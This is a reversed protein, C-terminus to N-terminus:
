VSENIENLLHDGLIPRPAKPGLEELFRSANTRVRPGKSSVVAKMQLAQGRTLSTCSSLLLYQKTRTMAVYLLRRQEELHRIQENTDKSEFQQPLVGNICGAVVVFRESLGKSKHLSMVRVETAEEPIEPQSIISKMEDYLENIDSVETITQATLERLGVTADEVPGLWQFIFDAIAASRLTVLEKIIQKYQEVIPGMHPLSIIGRALQDLAELLTINQTQCYERLIKISRARWDLAEYGLAARWAVKDEPHALLNLIALREQARPSDLVGEHFFSRVPVGLEMLYDRIKGGILKRPTLVIVEGPLVQKKDLRAKIIEALGKTERELSVWQVIKVDGTCAGAKPRLGRRFRYENKSILTKALELVLTPCRLCEELRKTETGKHTEPFCIIGDPHAYKFSYISQDDDGAVTLTNNGTILEILEQEAKNLDQYEDVLVHDFASREECAPNQRLFHLTVPVLEGVLMCRYFGFWDGLTKEFCQDEPNVAWGPDESQLRAWAAEFAKLRKELPRVGENTLLSLDKLMIRTEFELLTRPVRGTQQLVEERNLIRFCHSHLTSSWVDTCGPSELKKLSKKLDKAAARTFTVLFIRSPNAGTELLRAVRRMLGFTKGTGPGAIIHLPSGQYEAIEKQRGVLGDSWPM